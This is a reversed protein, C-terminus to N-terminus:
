NTRWNFALIFANKHLEEHQANTWKFQSDRVSTREKGLAGKDRKGNSMVELCKDMCWWVCGTKREDRCGVVIFLIFWSCSSERSCGKTFALSRYVM